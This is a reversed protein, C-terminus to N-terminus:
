GRIANMSQLKHVYFIPYLATLLALILIIVSQEIFVAPGFDFPYLPEIGYVEFLKAYDGTFRIPNNHLYWIVPISLAFGTLGGVMAILVSEVTTVLSLRWRKMGVAILIGFERVREATMMMVTGCLGFAIVLYLIGLMIYGGAADSEIQLLLERMMEEWTMIRYEKDVIRKVEPKVDDIYESNDLMVSLSMMLGYAANIEQAQNLSLFAMANNQESVPFKAIGSVRVIGAAITGHYGQGYIVISDGVSAGINRALGEALLIGTSEDRLYEGAKMRRKLGSILNEREPDIGIVSTVKTLNGNSVLAFTELRPAVHRVHELREIRRIDSESLSFSEDISRDEWYNKGQVQLHGTYQRVATDIMYAYSGLQGSRMLVSIIVAFVVSSIAIITRRKNRWLNRWGMSALM